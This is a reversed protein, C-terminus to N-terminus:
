GSGADSLPAVAFPEYLVVARSALDRADYIRGPVRAADATGWYNNLARLSDALANAPSSLALRSTQSFNNGSVQPYCNLTLQLDTDTTGVFENAEVWTEGPVVACRAGTIGFQNDVFSNHRLVSSVGGKIEVGTGGGVFDNWQLDIVANSAVVASLALSEFSSERITVGPSDFAEVGYTGGTVACREMEVASGSVYLAVRGMEWFACNVVASEVQEAIAVGEYLGTFRCNELRHPGSGARLVVGTTGSGRAAFEVPVTAPAAWLVGDVELKADDLFVLRTGEDPHLTVGAAVEVLGEVRYTRDRELNVEGAAIAAGLDREELLAITGLDVATQGAIRVGTRRTLGYGDLEITVEYTADALPELRFEGTGGATVSLGGASVLAGVAPAGDERTLRGEIAGVHAEGAPEVSCSVLLSGLLLAVALRGAYNM